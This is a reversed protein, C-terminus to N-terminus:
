LSDLSFKLTLGSEEDQEISKVARITIFQSNQLDIILTSSDVIDVNIRLVKRLAEIADEPTLHEIIM